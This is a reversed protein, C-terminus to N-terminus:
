WRSIYPDYPKDGLLHKEIKYLDLRILRRYSVKRKLVPHDITTRLRGEWEKVFIERGAETLFIGEVGESFHKAKLQNKNILSFIVRDVLVPKFVEAVDLNLSFRRFNTTHLFGIRPDLHTRYIESLVTVYLLSNGFSILANLRNQPPRRTRKDFSFDEQNIIIDFASYYAERANGEIAMLPETSEQTEIALAARELQDLIPELSEKGRRLYYELVREMNGVAGSVFRRALDMRKIPDLYHESQKLILWGSNYYERPYFSGVYYGYRNFFHILIENQTLFELFRKNFNLEGFAYLEAITEVPIYRKKASTDKFVITNQRRELVGSSFIYVPKKMKEVGLLVRCLRLLSM